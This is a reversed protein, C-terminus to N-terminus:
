QPILGAKALLCASGRGCGVGKTGGVPNSAGTRLIVRKTKAELWVGDKRVCVGDVVEPRREQAEQFSTRGSIPAKLGRGEM